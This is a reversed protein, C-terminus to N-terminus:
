DLTEHAEVVQKVQRYDATIEEGCAIMQNATIVIRDGEYKAVSNPNPSHNTYRGALTWVGRISAIAVCEGAAIQRSSFVGKGAIESPEVSINGCPTPDVLVTKLATDMQEQTFGNEALFLDFDASM